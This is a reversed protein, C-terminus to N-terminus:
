DGATKHLTFRAGKGERAMGHVAVEVAGSPPGDSDFAKWRIWFSRGYVRGLQSVGGGGLWKLGVDPAVRAWGVGDPLGYRLSASPLYLMRLFSKGDGSARLTLRFLEPPYEGHLNGYVGTSDYAFGAYQKRAYETKGWASAALADADGDAIRRAQFVPVPAQGCGALLGGVVFVLTRKM